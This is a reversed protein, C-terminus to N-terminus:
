IARWALRVVNEVVIGAVVIQHREYDWDGFWAGARQATKGNHTERAHRPPLAFSGGDSALRARLMRLATGGDGQGPTKMRVRLAETFDNLFDLCRSSTREGGSFQAVDRKWRTWENRRM